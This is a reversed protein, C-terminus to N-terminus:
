CLVNHNMCFCMIQVSVRVCYHAYNYRIFKAAQQSPVIIFCLITFWMATLFARLRFVPHRPKSHELAVFYTRLRNRLSRTSGNNGLSHEKMHAEARREKEEQEGGTICDSYNM